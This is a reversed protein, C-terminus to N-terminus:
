VVAEPRQRRLTLEADAPGRGPAKAHYTRIPANVQQKALDKLDSLGMQPQVVARVAAQGAFSPQAALMSLAMEIRTKDALFVRDAQSRM